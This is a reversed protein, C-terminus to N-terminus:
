VGVGLVVDFWLVRGIHWGVLGALLVLALAVVAALASSSRNIHAIM